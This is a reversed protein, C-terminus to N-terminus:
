RSRTLERHELAREVKVLVGEFNVPKLLYDYAGSRVAAVASEVTGYATMVIVPTDPITERLHGLLTMGDMEPMRVDTIVLDVQQQLVLDFAERGNAAQCVTYGEDGLLEALSERLVQEDEVILISKPM